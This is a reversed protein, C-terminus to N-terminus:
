MRRARAARESETKDGPTIRVARQSLEIAESNARTESFTRYVSEASPSEARGLEAGPAMGESAGAHERSAAVSLRSRPCATSRSLM